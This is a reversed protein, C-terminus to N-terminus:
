SKNQSYIKKREIKSAYMREDAEKLLRHYDTEDKTLSYGFSFRLQVCLDHDLHATSNNQIYKLTDINDLLEGESSYNYLFLVFEDGGQRSAICSKRSFSSIVESIKKLYLDGKEHGYKDNIGKLGDADIMILAGYGLKEPNKFLTSLKNELGRRNYLGTLLDLDREAEIQRRNLIKDTLDMIIGLIDNDRVVEEIKVFYENNQSEICYVGEEEPIPHERVEDLFQRFLKYDSSLELTKESDLALIKPVYETFRVGLMRENYEYVGIKLNTKNLVYSIKDTSALISEIMDNIHNSLESFELSNQVDIKEDLNGESISALKENILYIEDIVMSNIFKSVAIVLITAVLILTFALELLKSPIEKYLLDNSVVRGLIIEDSFKRFMCYSDVGSVNAHFGNKNEKVDSLNIGIQTINKGVDEASTSGKIEGTVSDVALLNVGANARLLSFIYSLENKETVEMVRVPTMGVQVIIEESWLASYQMLKEEATNPTIEQCLRLSKDDLMPKFFGIQEGSDFTYGYYEPHTGAIIEGKADFINIEDVGIFESIKKLEQIDEVVSPDSQIIYAIAEANHLCTLSYEEKIEELENHNQNLIQEIQLFMAESSVSSQKQEYIVQFLMSIVLIVLVMILTVKRLYVLVIKKINLM